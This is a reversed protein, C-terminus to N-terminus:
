RNKVRWGTGSSNNPHAGWEFGLQRIDDHDKDIHSWDGEKNKKLYARSWNDVNRPDYSVWQWNDDNEDTMNFSSVHEIEYDAGANKLVKLLNEITHSPSSTIKLLGGQELNKDANRIITHQDKSNDDDTMAYYSSNFTISKGKKQFNIPKVLDHRINYPDKHDYYRDIPVFYEEPTSKYGEANTYGPDQADGAGFDYHIEGAKPPYSELLIWKLNYRLMHRGEEKREEEGPIREDPDFLLDPDMDGEINQYFKPTVPNEEYSDYWRDASNKIPREPVAESWTRGFDTGRRGSKYAPSTGTEKNTALKRLNDPNTVFRHRTRKYFEEPDDAMLQRLEDEKKQRYKKYNKPGSKKLIRTKYNPDDGYRALHHTREIETEKKNPSLEDFVKRKTLLDKRKRNARSAQKEEPSMRALQRRGSEKNRKNTLLRNKEAEQPNTKKLLERAERRKITRKGEREKRHAIVEPRSAYEKAYADRAKKNDEMWKKNVAAERARAKSSMTLRAERKKANRKDRIADPQNSEDEVLIWKLNYRLM